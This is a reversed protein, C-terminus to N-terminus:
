LSAPKKGSERRRFFNRGLPVNFELEGECRPCYIHRLQEIGCNKETMTDRFFSVDGAVMHNIFDEKDRPGLVEGDSLTVKDILAIVSDEVTSDPENYNRTERGKEALVHEEHGRMFHAEIIAESIPLTMILPEIPMDNESWEKIPLKDISVTQEFNAGCLYCRVAFDYDLGYSMGRLFFLIYLRDSSLLDGADIDSKICNELVMDLARGSQILRDTTMIKEENLTLQRVKIIGKALDPDDVSGKYLLGKSPLEVSVPAPEFRSVGQNLNRPLKNQTKIKSTPHDAKLKPEDPKRNIPEPIEIEKSM